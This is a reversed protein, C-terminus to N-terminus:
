KNNSEAVGVTFRQPLPPFTTAGMCGGTWGGSYLEAERVKMVDRKIKKEAPTARKEERSEYTM